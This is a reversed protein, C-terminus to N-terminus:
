ILGKKTAIRVMLDKRYDNDDLKTADYHVGGVFLMDDEQYTEYDDWKFYYKKNKMEKILTQMKVGLSKVTFPRQLITMFLSGKKVGLNNHVVGVCGGAYVLRVLKNEFEFPNSYTRGNFGCLKRLNTSGMVYGRFYVEDVVADNNIILHFSTFGPVVVNIGDPIPAYEIYQIENLSQEYSASHLILTGNTLAVTKINKGIVFVSIINTFSISPYKFTKETSFLVNIPSDCYIPGKKLCYIPGVILSPATMKKLGYHDDNWELECEKEFYIALPGYLRQDPM